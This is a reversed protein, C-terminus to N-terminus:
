GGDCDEAVFESPPTLHEFIDNFDRVRIAGKEEYKAPWTLREDEFCSNLIFLKRGQDLAARAQTLTGSTESAEVIVTAQSLASMTINRQPFYRRKSQFPEHAYRFFPIESILLYEKAIQEQLERNPKPYSESIPTGIVGITIGGAKIAATMAATDIGEALGSIVPYGAEVLGQALKAARKRGAESAKRAGVVSVGPFSVLDLSGRYYFLNIPHSAEQLREPYQYAGRVAVTFASFSDLFEEIWREVEDRVTEVELRESAYIDLLASPLVPNSRFAEAISKLTEGHLAWLTEYALMEEYLSVTKRRLGEM